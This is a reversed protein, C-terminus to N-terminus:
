AGFVYQVNWWDTMQSFTLGNSRTQQYVYTSKNIMSPPPVEVVEEVEPADNMEEQIMGATTAVARASSSRTSMRTRKNSEAYVSEGSVKRKRMVAPDASDDVAPRRSLDLMVNRSKNFADVADRIAWNGRLKSEQDTARCMPCKGDTNLARRICLSCFTHCCSTIVPSDYFDKCVHCRLSQELQMLSALPTDLWDSPDSVEDNM